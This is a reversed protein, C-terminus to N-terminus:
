RVSKKFEKQYTSPHLHVRFYKKLESNYGLSKAPFLYQWGIEKGANPYKKSLAYPMPAEVNGKRLDLRHLNKVKEIQREIAETLKDPLITIRDKEGKGDRITITRLELDLDQVRIKICEGLRMGSGYLLKSVLLVIGDLNEFIRRIEEKNLVVPLHKVRSVKKINEIWGIDKNLINKYLFLIGHLAQNQTSSAVNGKVALHNLFEKIEKQGMEAPHKKGHFFIYRKIWSLYAQETRKSYHKTKLETRVSNLLQSGPM